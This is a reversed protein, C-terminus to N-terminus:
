LDIGYGNKVNKIIEISEIRKRSIQKLINQHKNQFKDNVSTSSLVIHIAGVMSVLLIIGCIQFLIFYNNYLNLGIISADSIQITFNNQIIINNDFNIASKKAVFLSFITLLTIFAFTNFIFNTKKTNKINTMMVVFLYLTAVAGVYDINLLIAIYTTSLIIYIWSTCFFALVLYLVAHVGNKSFVSLFLSMLLGASFVYLLVSIVMILFLLNTIM